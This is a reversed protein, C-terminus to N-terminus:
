EIKEEHGVSADKVQKSSLMRQQCENPFQFSTGTQNWWVVISCDLNWVFVKTSATNQKLVYKAKSRM